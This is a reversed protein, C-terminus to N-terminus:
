IVAAQEAGVRVFYDVAFQAMPSYSRGKLAFLGMENFMPPLDSVQLHVLQRSEVEKVSGADPCAVVTDTTMAITKLLNL